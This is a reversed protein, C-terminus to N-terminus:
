IAVGITLVAVFAVFCSGVIVAATEGGTLGSKNIDDLSVAVTVTGLANQVWDSIMRPTLKSSTNILYTGNDYQAQVLFNTFAVLLSTTSTIPMYCLKNSYGTYIISNNSIVKVSVNPCTADNFDIVKM